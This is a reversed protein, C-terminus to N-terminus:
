YFVTLFTEQLTNCFGTPIQKTRGRHNYNYIM